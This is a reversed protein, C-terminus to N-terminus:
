TGFSYCPQECFAVGHHQRARMQFKAHVAKSRLAMAPKEVYDCTNLERFNFSLHTKPTTFIKVAMILIVLDIKLNMLRVVFQRGVELVVM